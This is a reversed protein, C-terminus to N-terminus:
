RVANFADKVYPTANRTGFLRENNSDNETSLLSASDDCHLLFGSLEAHAIEITVTGEGAMQRM